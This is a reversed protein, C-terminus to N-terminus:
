APPGTQHQPTVPLRKQTDPQLSPTSSSLPASPSPAAPPASKRGSVLTAEPNAASGIGTVVLTPGGTGFQIRSQTRVETPGKIPQGDVFTGHTSGADVVFWSNNQLRFEAHQRSVMPWDKRDFVIQCAAANRGVVILPQEYRSENSLQGQHEEAFSIQTM